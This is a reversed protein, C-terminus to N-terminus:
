RKCIEIRDIGNIKKLDELIKEDAKLINIINDILKRIDNDMNSNVNYNVWLGDKKYEVLGANELLRLHFSITPQSLGIIDQIECVCLNNKALLLALIRIRGPDALAKIIKSLKDLKVM